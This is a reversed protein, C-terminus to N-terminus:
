RKIINILKKFAEGITTGTAEIIKGSIEIIIRWIGTKSDYYGKM